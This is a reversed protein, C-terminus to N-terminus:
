KTSRTRRVLSRQLSLHRLRLDCFVKSPGTSLSADYSKPGQVIRRGSKPVAWGLEVMIATATSHGDSGNPDAVCARVRVTASTRQGARNLRARQPRLAASECRLIIETAGCCLDAVVVHRIGRARGKAAHSPRKFRQETSVV